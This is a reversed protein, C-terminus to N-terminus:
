LKISKLGYYIENGQVQPLVILTLIHRLVSIVWRGQDALPFWFSTLITLSGGLGGESKIFELPRIMGDWWKYNYLSCLSDKQTAM